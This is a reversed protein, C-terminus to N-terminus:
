AAPPTTGDARQIRDKDELYSWALDFTITGREYLRALADDMTQLGASRGAEIAVSLDAHGDAIMQRVRPLGILIENAPVRGSLHARPLLRQAIVAVLNRALLGRAMEQQSPPFADVLRKVAGSASGVNLTTFILHGTEALTLALSLTELDRIEGVLVVDPDERLAARLGAPFDAVDQGVARQTILSKKAEFEYEIPDEITVIREARTRNITEILGACTTTKGSGSTGTVVILGRTVATLKTLTGAAEPSFDLEDIAHVRRPVIRVAGALRGREHFVHLRFSAAERRLNMQVDQRGETLVARLDDPLSPLLLAELAAADLVPGDRRILTGAVRFVPPEGAVLHLDSGDKATLEDLLTNLEM